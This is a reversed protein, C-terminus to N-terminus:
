ELKALHVVLINPFLPYWHFWHLSPGDTKKKFQVTSNLNRAVKEMDLLPPPIKFLYINLSFWRGGLLFGPNTCHFKFDATCMPYKELPWFKCPKSNPERQTIHFELDASSGWLRLVHLSVASNEFPRICCLSVVSNEFPRIPCLSVASNGFLRSFRFSVVGNGFLRILGSRKFCVANSPVKSFPDRWFVPRKTKKLHYGIAVRTWLQKGETLRISWWEINKSFAQRNWGLTTPCLSGNENCPKCRFSQSDDSTRRKPPSLCIAPDATPLPEFSLWSQM